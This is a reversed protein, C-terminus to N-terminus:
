CSCRRPPRHRPTTPHRLRLTAGPVNLTLTRPETMATDKGSREDSPSVVHQGESVERLKALDIKKMQLFAQTVRDIRERDDGGLMEEMGSPVIQWSVGFKDKLWGCQEAEPVASLKSWYYDIRRRPRASCWSPSRKTSPSSTTM